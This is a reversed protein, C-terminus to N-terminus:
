NNEEESFEQLMEFYKKLAIRIIDSKSKKQRYAEFRLKEYNEDDISISLKELNEVSKPRAM